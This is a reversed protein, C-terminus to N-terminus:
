CPPKMRTSFHVKMCDFARVRVAPLIWLVRLGIRGVPTLFYRREYIHNLLMGLGLVGLGLFFGIVVHVFPVSAVAYGLRAHVFSTRCFDSVSDQLRCKM